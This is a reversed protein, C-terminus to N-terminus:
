WLYNDAGHISMLVLLIALLCSAPVMLALFAAADRRKRARWLPPVEYLTLGVFLVVYIIGM